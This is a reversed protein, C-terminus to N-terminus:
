TRCTLVRWMDMPRMREGKKTRMGKETMIELIQRVSRGESHLRKAEQVLPYLKPDQILVSRGELDRANLYGLPAKHMREGQTRKLKIAAHGQASLTKYYESIEM